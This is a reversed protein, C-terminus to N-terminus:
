TAERPQPYAFRVVTGLLTLLALTRIQSAFRYRLQFFAGTSLILIFSAFCANLGPPQRGERWEAVAYLMLLGLPLLLNVLTYDLSYPPLTVALITLAIVQNLMPMHRIRLTYLAIGGTAAIPSYWLLALRLEEVSATRAGHMRAVLATGV